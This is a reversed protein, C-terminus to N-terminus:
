GLLKKKIAEHIEYAEEAQMYEGNEKEIMEPAFDGTMLELADLIFSIEVATLKSEKERLRRLRAKLLKTAHAEDRAQIQTGELKGSTVNFTTM